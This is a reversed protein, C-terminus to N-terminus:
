FIWGWNMFVAALAVQSAALVAIMVALARRRQLIVVWTWAVPFLVSTLRPLSDLPRFAPGSSLPILLATWTYVVYALPIRRVMWIASIVIAVTIVADVTLWPSVRNAVASMGLGVGRVFSVIPVTPSRFWYNQAEVPALVDGHAVGWWAGYALLTAVPAIAVAVTTALSRPKSRWWMVALAPVLTVGLIRILTAASSAIVTLAPRRRRCWWFALVTALLFPSESYPALFFFSAPMAAFFAITPRATARGLEESTLGFLVILAALYCVNSVLLAAAEAGATPTLARILLPYGPMFAARRDPSQGYSDDAIWRFWPGDWRDMGDVANHLGPTAASTYRAPPAGPSLATPDPQHGSVALVGTLSIVVRAVLFVVVCFASGDRLRVPDGADLAAHARGDHTSV